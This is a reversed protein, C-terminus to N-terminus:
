EGQTQQWIEDLMKIIVPSEQQVLGNVACNEEEIRIRRLEKWRKGWKLMEGPCIGLFAARVNKEIVEDLLDEIEYRRSFDSFCRDLVLYRLQANKNTPM